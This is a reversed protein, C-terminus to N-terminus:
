VASPTATGGHVVRPPTKVRAWRCPPRSGKARGRRQISPRERRSREVGKRSRRWPRCWRRCSRCDRPSGRPTMEHTDVEVAVAVAQHAVEEVALFLGAVDEDRGRRDDLHQADEVLGLGQEPLQAVASAACGGPDHRDCDETCWASWRPASCPWPPHHRARGPPPGWQAVPPHSRGVAALSARAAEPSAGLEVHAGERAARYLLESCYIAHGGLAFRDDYPRGLYRRAAQILADQVPAQLRAVTVAGGRGRRRWERWPTFRVPGVAELVVVEGGQRVVVGCHTYPSRTVGAILESFRGTTRQFVLDGHLPVFRVATPGTEGRAGQSCGVLILGVVLCGMWHAPRVCPFSM